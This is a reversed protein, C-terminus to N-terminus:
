RNERAKAEADVDKEWEAILPRLRRAIDSRDKALDQREGIDQTLNFLLMDDGDILLKWDGQRVSRQQRQNSAIRFFLTREVPAAHGTLMPLLDIGELRADAPAPTNTAALISATLDMTIGVQSSVRGAPIRGPWRMILPVRIGGEWLTDKRQFLPANRSLWEGGNDNTFIVLTNRVLGARTLAELIQGVGRDARELIAVYDARTSTDADSPQVFRANNPAISPKDPVQFPWHAANYAVELFFPGRAHDEIFKVSRETILDTMYGDVHVPADNEYLDHKGDGGTHQYYDILGGLFGFFYDFGHASPQYEKKYGLHWKGILGTAYGNNKLLQPLSRGTAPLGRDRDVSASGGLPRELRVRQQYRGSILAARTPTCTPAAYFDTLRTGDKALRDINPTKIDPAGYSGIDGYGVDDTVILVVNPTAQASALVPLLVLVFFIALLRRVLAFPRPARTRCHATRPRVPALTRLHATRRHPALNSLAITSIRKPM